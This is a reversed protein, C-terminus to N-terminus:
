KWNGIELQWNAGIPLRCDGIPLKMAVQAEECILHVRSGCCALQCDAIALKM